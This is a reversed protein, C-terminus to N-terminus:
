EPCEHQIGELWALIRRLLDPGLTRAPLRARPELYADLVWVTPGESARGALDPEAASAAGRVTVPTPAVVVLAAGAEAAPRGAAEWWALREPDPEPEVAVIVPMRHRYPAFAGQLRPFPFM